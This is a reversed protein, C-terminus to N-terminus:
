ILLLGKPVVAVPGAHDFNTVTCNKCHLLLFPFSYDVANTFVTGRNQSIKNCLSHLQLYPAESVLGRDVANLEKEVIEEERKVITWKVAFSTTM